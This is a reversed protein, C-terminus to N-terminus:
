FGRRAEKFLIRKAREWITEKPLRKRLDYQLEHKPIGLNYHDIQAITSMGVQEAARIDEESATGYEALVAKDEKCQLSTNCNLCRVSTNSGFITTPYVPTQAHCAPCEMNTAGWRIMAQNM